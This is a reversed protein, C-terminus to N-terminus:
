LVANDVIIQYQCERGLVFRNDALRILTIFPEEIDNRVVFGYIFKETDYHFCVKVLSNLFSGQKPFNDITINEVAGM